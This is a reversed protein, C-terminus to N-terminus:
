KCLSLVQLLELRHEVVRIARETVEVEVAVTLHIVQAYHLRTFAVLSQNHQLSDKGLIDVLVYGGYVHLFVVRALDAYLHDAVLVDITCIIDDLGHVHVPRHDVIPEPTRVPYCPIAGPVPPIVRVPPVVVCAPLAVPIPTVAVCPVMVMVVAREAMCAICMAAIVVEIVPYTMSLIRRSM